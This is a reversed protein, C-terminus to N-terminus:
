CCRLIESFASDAADCSRALARVMVGRLFERWREDQEKETLLPDLEIKHGDVTKYRKTPPEADESVHEPEYKLGSRQMLLEKASVEATSPDVEDAPAISSTRRRHEEIQAHFKDDIHKPHFAQALVAGHVIKNALDQMPCDESTSKGAKCFMEDFRAQYDIEAIM